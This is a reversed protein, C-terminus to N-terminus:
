GRSPPNSRPGRDWWSPLASLRRNVAVPLRRHRAGLNLAAYKTLEYLATAPIQARMGNRWLWRVETAAYDRGRRRLAAAAPRSGALYARDASVGSDFFRRFASGYTYAHSHRVAAAPEYALEWGDLLVRTAWEQDESMIMDGAFRHREWASRRIAANANSFMTTEVTLEADGAARQRRADPGYMYELFFHEAPRAGHNAIQRGYVGALEPRSRLPAVLTALWRDDAASADQSTFVLADGSSAEVGLNRTAGHNFESSGIEIVTAGHRRCLEASGDTSASDVVILEREEGVRQRDLAELCRKLETGGDLVPIVISILRM